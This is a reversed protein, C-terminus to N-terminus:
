EISEVNGLAWTDICRSGFFSWFWFTTFVEMMYLIGTYLVYSILHSVTQIKVKFIVFTSHRSIYLDNNIASNEPYLSIIHLM